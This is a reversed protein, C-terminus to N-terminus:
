AETAEGRKVAHCVEEECCTRTTKEKSEDKTKSVITHGCVISLGSRVEPFKLHGGCSINSPAMSERLKENVPETATKLILHVM